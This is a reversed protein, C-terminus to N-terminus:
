RATAVFDSVLLDFLEPRELHVNHACQPCVALSSRPIGRWLQECQHWGISRDREGWLVLAPMRFSGLAHRIDWHEWAYTSAIAAQLSASAGIAACMPFDPAREGDVFWTAAIHRATAAVGDTELRRRSVATSEFRGALGGGPGTGYLVLRDIREGAVAALQQAIMGGMSHGVVTFRAIGLRQLLALVSEAHHAIRDPGPLHASGGFGALDPAVVDFRGSYLALQRRWMDSSGLYGHLFVLAPGSGTRKYALTVTEGDTM